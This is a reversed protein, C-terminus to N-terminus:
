SEWLNRSFPPFPRPPRGLAALEDLPAPNILSVLSDSRYPLQLGAAEALRLAALVARPAVPVLRVRRGRAAAIQEVIARLTTPTEHAAFITGPREWTGAVLEAVLSALHEDHSVFLRESGGVVPMLSHESSTGVLRGFLGGGAVGFVLGPRIALGGRHHVARELAFKARGYRSRAGSFSSLSSILVLRAGHAAVADLLPLSGRVNVADVEEGRASADWAAHIVAEVGELTGEAVQECLAFRRSPSGCEQPRRVLALAEVGSDRLHTLIRGGVYGNAGTVAIV